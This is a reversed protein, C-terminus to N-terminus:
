NPTVKGYDAYQAEIRSEPEKDFFYLVLVFFWEAPKMLFYVLHSIWKYEFLYYYHHIFRGVYNYKGRVFRHFRPMKESLLEEFANSVLLQRNCIILQGGRIGYRQRKVIHPDGNAAVSCLYHGGCTVNQCLHDLQSFGHHYTQTFAKVLSDPQQGFLLLLTTALFLVPMFLLFLVPYKQLLPLTLISAAYNNLSSKRDFKDNNIGEIVRHHNEILQILFLLAIPLNGVLWLLEQSHYGIAINLIIGVILLSNTIVEALPPFLKENFKSSFYAIAIILIWFFMTLRHEPSFAIETNCCDLTDGIDFFMLYIIPFIGVLLISIFGNLISNMWRKKAYLLHFLEIFVLFTPTLLLLLFFLSRIMDM